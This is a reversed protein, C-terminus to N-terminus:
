SVPIMSLSLDLSWDEYHSFYREVRSEIQIFVSLAAEPLRHRHGSNNEFM